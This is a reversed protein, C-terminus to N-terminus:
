RLYGLSRYAERVTEKFKRYSDLKDLEALSVKQGIAQYLEGISLKRRRKSLDRQAIRIANNIIEKPDQYTEPKRDIGLDNDPKNTGIEKKLLSKDALMWSEMMRVPVLPALLTCYQQRDKECLYEIAPIIRDRFTAEDTKDDADSHVCLVMISYEKCGIRSAKDVFEIFSLGSKDVDILQLFIEIECTCEFAIDDFTRKVVSELFRSDTTGEVILGIFIQQAM